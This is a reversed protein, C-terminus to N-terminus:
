GNVAVIPPLVLARRVAGRLVDDVHFEGLREVPCWVTRHLGATNRLVDGGAVFRFMFDFHQHESEGGAAPIDHVDLGVVAPPVRSDVETGTEELVERAAAAVLSADSPEVHGGPQLWRALRPHFVLLVRDAARSLVLGSATVHGPVFHRRSFPEPTSDLLELVALRSARARADTGPAFGQALARVESIAIVHQEGVVSHSM